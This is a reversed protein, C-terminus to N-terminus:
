STWCTGTSWALDPWAWSIVGSQAPFANSCRASCIHLGHSAEHCANGPSVDVACGPSDWHPHHASWGGLALTLNTQIRHRASQGSGPQGMCWADGVGGAVHATKGAMIRIKRAHIGAHMSQKVNLRTRARKALSINVRHLSSGHRGAGALADCHASQQRHQRTCRFVLKPQHHLAELIRIARSLCLAAYMYSTHVVQRCGSSCPSM